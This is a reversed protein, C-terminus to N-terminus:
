IWSCPEARCCICSGNRGRWATSGASRRRDRPESGETGTEAIGRQRRDIGHGPSACLSLRSWANNYATTDLRNKSAQQQASTKAQISIRLHVLCSPVQEPLLPRQGASDIMTNRGFGIDVVTETLPKNIGNIRNLGKPLIHGRPTLASYALESRNACLVVTESM